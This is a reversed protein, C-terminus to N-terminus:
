VDRHERITAIIMVAIGYILHIVIFFTVLNYLKRPMLASDPTQPSQIVVLHKLKRYSEVRAQELTQLSGRYIDTAFEFALNLEQFQANVQNISQEGQSAFKDRELELQDKIGNIRDRIAVLEAADTQLYSTLVKEEAELRVLDGEMENVVAQIAAGTVAPDLLENESQFSLMAARADNVASRARTLEQEVFGIEQLAIQQSVNNIYAEAEVLVTEAVRRSFERTFGQGRIILIDSTPEISVSVHENYYDLFDEEHADAGMRSFFDWESSSYHGRLDLREDLRKLMDNSKIYSQLLLADQSSGGAGGPVLTAITPLMPTNETTSKVYARTETVYRDSVWFLNYFLFAGFVVLVWPYKLFVAPRGLVVEYPGPAGGQLRDAVAERFKALTQKM